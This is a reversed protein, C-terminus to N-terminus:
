ITKMECISLYADCKSTRGGSEVLYLHCCACNVLQLSGQFLDSYYGTTKENLKASSLLYLM